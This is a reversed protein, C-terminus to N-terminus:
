KLASPGVKIITRLELGTSAAETVQQHPSPPRNEDSEPFTPAHLYYDEAQERIAKAIDTAFLPAPLGLDDCLVAAFADPTIVTEVLFPTDTLL